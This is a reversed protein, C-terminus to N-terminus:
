EEFGLNWIEKIRGDQSVRRTSDFSHTIFWKLTALIWIWRGFTGSKPLRFRYLLIATSTRVRPPFTTLTRCESKWTRGAWFGDPRGNRCGRCIRPLVKPWVM